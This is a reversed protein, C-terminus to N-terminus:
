TSAVGQVSEIIDEELLKTLVDEVKRRYSFPLRRVPQAVPDCHPDIHLKVQVDRLKDVGNFCEPYKAKVFTELNGSGHETLSCVNHNVNIVSLKSATHASILNCANGNFVFFTADTSVSKVTIRASFQGLLDLPTSQGFAFLRKSPPQLDVYGSMTNYTNKDIINDVAGSDILFTIKRGDLLASCKPAKFEHENSVAFEHNFSDLSSTSQPTNDSVVLEESIANASSKKSKRCYRAGSYHGEKNCDRCTKKLAPCNEDNAKHGEKSCRFCVVKTSSVATGKSKRNSSRKPQSQTVQAVVDTTTTGPRLLANERNELLQVTGAVRMAGALTTVTADEVLKRTLVKHNVGSIFQELLNEELRGAFNCYKAGKRVRIQFNSITENDARSISRFQTRELRENRPTGFHTILQQQVDDYAVERPVTPSVLDKLTQYQTASLGMLLIPVKNADDTAAVTFYCDLRELYSEIETGEEFSPISLGAAM